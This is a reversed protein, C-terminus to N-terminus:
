VLFQSTRRKAQCKNPRIDDVYNTRFMALSTNLNYNISAVLASFNKKNKLSSFLDKAHRTLNFQDIHTFYIKIAINNKTIFQITEPKIKDEPLERFKEVQSCIEIIESAFCKQIMEKSFEHWKIVADNWSKPEAQKALLENWTEKYKPIM